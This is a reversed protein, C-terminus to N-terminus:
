PFGYIEPLDTMFMSYFYSWIRGFDWWDSLWTGTIAELSDGRREHLTM